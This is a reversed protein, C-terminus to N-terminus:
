FSIHFVSIIGLVCSWVVFLVELLRPCSPLILWDGSFTGAVVRLLPRDHIVALVVDYIRDMRM